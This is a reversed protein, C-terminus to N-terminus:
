NYICEFDEYELLQPIGHEIKSLTFHKYYEPRFTSDPNNIFLEVEEEEKIDNTSIFNVAKWDGSFDLFQTEGTIENIRAPVGISRCIAVFLLTKNLDDGVKYEFTARPSQTLTKPNFGSYDRIEGIKEALLAPSKKYADIEDKSLAKQFYEKYPTLNEFYIRPNLIYKAYIDAYDSESINKTPYQPLPTYLLNDTLIDTSIDHLDKEPLVSLLKIAFERRELPIESLYSLIVKHNGRSKVIIDSAISDVGIEDLNLSKCIEKADAPSPFTAIYNNRISDEFVKRSENNKIKEPSINLNQYNGKPPINDFELIGSFSNDKDLRLIISDGAHIPTFNFKGEKAAWVLLDGAGSIFKAKGSKDSGKEGIPYFEAYNSLCVKVFADKVPLDKEDIVTVVSEKVPAYNETVNITVGIETKDSKEEPGDYRGIVDTTMLMGRSAPENFWAMNLEPEPECAGLFWWKGDAWAEVWAHNDDTHAWRTTYVQRAPIGISRLAAVTFTSEEGCRGSANKMTTLPPSTRMDSPQYSVKEHCWHNTELIADKMSMGKVREKLENFFYNRSNDLSENNVRLPLVFHLWERDPVSDGWSMEKKAKLSNWINEIFFYKPYNLIDPTPMYTYIYKLAKTEELTLNDPIEIIEAIEPQHSLRSNYDDDLSTPFNINSYASLFVLSILISFIKKM